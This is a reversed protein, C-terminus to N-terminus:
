ARLFDFLQDRAARVNSVSGNGSTKAYASNLENWAARAKATSEFGFRATVEVFHADQSGDGELMNTMCSLVDAMMDDGRESTSLMERLLRGHPRGSDFHIYNFAM